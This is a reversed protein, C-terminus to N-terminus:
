GQFTNLLSGIVTIGNTIVTLKALFRWVYPGNYKSASKWVCILVAVIYALALLAFAYLGYANEVMKLALNFIAVPLAFVIWYTFWLPKDGNFLQKLFNAM